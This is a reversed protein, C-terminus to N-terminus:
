AVPENEFAKQMFAAENGCIVALMFGGLMNQAGAVVMTVGIVTPILSAFEIYGAASWRITLWLLVAFGSIGLGAGSVLMSELTLAKRLRRTLWHPRRYGALVGYLHTAVAMLGGLHGLGLLAGALITWSSGFMPPILGLRGFVAGAFIFLATGVAAAAPVAFVWTPSLMFLYRLHRWGDRWPRLHPDRTRLDVSLTAPVEQIQLKRLAAKIVMESAFEMGSGTLRLSRFADKRIARLGCHADSIRSRFLLNLLGTLIPNGIYRNKWPMAGPAIGGKFRSGMCLDAGGLLSGIMAVGERFDYSGDADGMLVFRGLAAEAGGILAAGYGRRAVPIVRAGLTEALAQSGDTSGNDAVVIEGFLGYRRLIQDLASQANEICHRLCGIENLCPMVISVDVIPHTGHRFQSSFEARM